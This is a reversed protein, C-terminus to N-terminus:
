GPRELLCLFPHPAAVAVTTRVTGIVTPVLLGALALLVAAGFFFFGSGGSAAGGAAPVASMPVLM